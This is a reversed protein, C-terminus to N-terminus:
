ILLLHVCQVPYLYPFQFVNRALAGSGHGRRV